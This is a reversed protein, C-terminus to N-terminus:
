PRASSCTVEPFNAAGHQYGSAELLQSAIELASEHDVVRPGITFEALAIRSPPRRLQLPVFRIIRGDRGERSQEPILKGRKGIAAYRWEHEAAWKPEKTTIATFAALRLLVNIVAEKAQRTPRAGAVHLCVRRINERTHQRVVDEQYFVQALAGALGYNKARKEGDLVRIGLCVGGGGAGYEAWQHPDDRRASLSFLYVPFMEALQLEGYHNVFFDLADRALGSFSNRLEDAVELLLQNAARLELHDNTCAFSTAWVAQSALIGKAGDWSTYHYLVRPQDRAFTARLLRDFMRDVSLLTPDWRRHVVSRRRSRPMHWKVGSGSTSFPSARSSCPARAAGGIM